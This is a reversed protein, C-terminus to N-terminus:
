YSHMDSQLPRVGARPEQVIMVQTQSPEQGNPLTRAKKLSPGSANGDLDSKRKSNSSVKASQSPPINERANQETDTLSQLGSTGHSPLLQMSIANNTANNLPAFHGLSSSDATFSSPTSLIDSSVTNSASPPNTSFNTNLFIPDTSQSSSGLGSSAPDPPHFSFSTPTPLSLTGNTNM